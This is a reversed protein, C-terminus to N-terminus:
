SPVREQGGESGGSVRISPGARPRASVRAPWGESRKAGARPEPEQNADTDRGPPGAAPGPRLVPGRGREAGCGSGLCRQAATVHGTRPPAGAASWTVQLAPHPGVGGVLALPM